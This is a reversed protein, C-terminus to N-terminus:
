QKIIKKTIVKGDTELQLFYIGTPENLTIDIQNTNTFTEQLVIQGLSNRIILSGSTVEEQSITFQESTPNPYLSINDKSEQEDIGIVNPMVVNITFGSGKFVVGNVGISDCYQSTCGAGDDITLCIYHPGSSTYTHSPTQFTSTDGDGFDWLYSLNSGTSSNIVTINNIGTDPYMVFGAACQVPSTVGTVLITDIYFDFCSSGFSSDNITLVVSYTGNASFTHNLTPLTSTSGDGFAWHSQNFNGISNNTFTFNGNGNDTITYYAYVNCPIGSCSNNCNINFSTQADINLWNSMSYAVDDVEICTLNPNNRTDFHYSDFATNNGNKVNLCTLYNGNCDITNLETNISLNLITIQNSGCYLSRLFTNNSVDLSTLQNNSCDLSSLNSNLNLNLNTLQNDSVILVDLNSNNSVDLSTLQNNTCILSTLNTNLNLSTLQNGYCNLSTLNSNNSVDIDILANGYCYLSELYINQSTNLTTLSNFGCSLTSLSTFDELGILNSINKNSINLFTITDISSTAVSGNPAGTDYGLDILAQEFNPDPIATTQAKTNLLLLLLPLLLLLKKM